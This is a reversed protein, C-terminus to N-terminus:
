GNPFLQPYNMFAIIPPANIIRSSFKCWRVFAWITIPFLTCSIIFKINVSQHAPMAINHDTVLIYFCDRIKRMVKIAMKKGNREKRSRPFINVPMKQKIRCIVRMPHIGAATHATIEKCFELASRRLSLSTLAM